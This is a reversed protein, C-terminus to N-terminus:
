RRRLQAVVVVIAATGVIVGAAWAAGALLSGLDLGSVRALVHAGLYLVAFTLLATGSRASWSWRRPTM